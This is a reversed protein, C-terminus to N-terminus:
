CEDAVDPHGPRLQPCLAVVTYTHAVVDYTHAVVDYTHAVVDYTHPVVTCPGAFVTYPGTVVIVVKYPGLLVDLWQM